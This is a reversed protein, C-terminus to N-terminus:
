LLADTIVFENVNKMSYFTKLFLLNFAKLLTSNRLYACTCLQGCRGPLGQGEAGHLCGGEREHTFFPIVGSSALLDCHTKPPSIFCSTQPM